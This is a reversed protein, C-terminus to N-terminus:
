RNQLTSILLLFLVLFAETTQISPARAIRCKLQDFRSLRSFNSMLLEWQADMTDGLFFDNQDLYPYEYSPRCRCKYKGLYFGRGLIPECQFAHPYGLDFKEGVFTNQRVVTSQHDCRDSGKFANPVHGPMSCQNIDLFSLSVDVRVVGRDFVFLERKLMLPM